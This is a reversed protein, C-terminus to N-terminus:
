RNVYRWVYGYAHSYKPNGQACRCINAKAYGTQREAESISPYEAVLVGDKTFQQVAMSKYGNVLKEARRKQATGFNTNDIHSIWQLNEARNNTKDEDIHNVEPLNNPNPIFAEAVLRHVSLTKFGKANGGRGHLQIGLYGHKRPQPHMVLNRKVSRVRGLSSVEYLGEYGKVPKWVEEMYNGGKTIAKNTVPHCASLSTSKTNCDSSVGNKM